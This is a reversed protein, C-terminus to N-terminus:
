AGSTSHHRGLDLLAVLHDHEGAAVLAAGALHELHPGVLAARQHAADVHDLTVLFLGGRLFAADNGLFPGDVQRVQGQRIGLVALRRADPELEDALAVVALLHAEGLARSDLDIASLSFFDSLAAFPSLVSFGALPGFGSCACCALPWFGALPSFGSCPSALAALAGFPSFPSFPAALGAAAAAAASSGRTGGRRRGMNSSTTRLFSVSCNLYLLGICTGVTSLITMLMPTPSPTLSRLFTSDAAASRVRMAPCFATIVLDRLAIEFKLSRSFWGIPQLTVSRLARM